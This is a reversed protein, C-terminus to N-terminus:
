ELVAVMVCHCFPLQTPYGRVEPQKGKAEQIVPPNDLEFVLGDLGNVYPYNSYDGNFKRIHLPRAERVAHSHLWKMKQVGLRQCNRMTISNYVKRTQDQAILKARRMEMGGYRAIEISLQKLSGGGNISRMVSGLVRDHYQPAISKILSVNYAINANVVQKIQEPVVQGILELRQDAFWDKLVQKIQTNSLRLMKEVFKKSHEKAFIEFNKGWKRGLSDLKKNIDTTLWTGEADMAVQEKKDRYIGLVSKYDKIMAKIMKYLENRYLIEPAKPVTFPKSVKQMEKIKKGSKTWTTRARKDM